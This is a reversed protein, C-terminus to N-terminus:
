LIQNLQTVAKAAWYYRKMLAESARALARGEGSVNAYGFAQAVPTQLDFVLRDERRKAEMHLRVRILFLLAQNREIHQVELASALGNARLQAWNQGLQAAKAVWMIAQLDRIGGPSEKCNPELAYPTDEFKTHRQRLELTKAVFFARPDMAQLFAKQFANVLAADGAIRRSELMATQVTVDKAAESLCESLSRVSSGIELGADWCSGIFSEIRQSLAGDAPAGDPLLLLVDVDSYPFLESRGYGGVAVLACPAGLGAQDWLHLLLADTQESLQRLVKYISRAPFQPALVRQLVQEKGSRYASRIAQLETM